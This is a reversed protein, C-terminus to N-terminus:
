YVIRLDLPAVLRRHRGVLLSANNLLSGVWALPLLGNVKMSNEPTLQGFDSRIIAANQSNSLTGPDACTGWYRKGKGVLKGNLGTGSNTSRAAGSTTTTTITSTSIGPACRLSDM